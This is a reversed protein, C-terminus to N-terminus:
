QVDAGAFRGIIRGSNCLLGVHRGNTRIGHGNCISRARAIARCRTRSSSVVTLKVDTALQAFPAAAHQTGQYTPSPTPATANTGGGRGGNLRMANAATRTQLTPRSSSVRANSAIQHRRQGWCRETRLLTPLVEPQTQAAARGHPTRLSARETSLMRTTKVLRTAIQNRKTPSARALRKCPNSRAKDAM